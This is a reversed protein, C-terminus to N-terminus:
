EEEDEIVAGDIPVSYKRSPYYAIRYHGYVEKYPIKKMIM